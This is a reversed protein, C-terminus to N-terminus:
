FQGILYARFGGEGGRANSCTSQQFQNCRIKGVSLLHIKLQTSEDVSQIFEINLLAIDIIVSHYERVYKSILVFICM